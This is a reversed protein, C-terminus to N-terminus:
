LRLFNKLEISKKDDGTIIIDYVYVILLVKGRDSTLPFVSHDSHCHRMGFQLVDSFKGFWARSSQQLGYLSKRLRCVLSREGRAVFGPTQEM